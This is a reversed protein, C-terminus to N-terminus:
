TKEIKSPLYKTIIHKLQKDILWNINGIFRAVELGKDNIIITVPISKVNFSKMLQKKSDVFIELNNIKKSDYFDKIIKADKYDASVAIIKLNQKKYTKKLEALDALKNASFMDWTAWIHLLILNGEFNDLIYKKGEEDYLEIEDLSIPELHEQFKYQDLPSAISTIQAFLNLIIAIIISRPIM